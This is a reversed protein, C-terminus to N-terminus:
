DKKPKKNPRKTRVPRKKQMVQTGLPPALVALPALRGASKPQKLKSLVAPQLVMPRHKLLLLGVTRVLVVPPHLPRKM